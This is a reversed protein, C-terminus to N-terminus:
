PFRIQGGGYRCVLPALGDAHVIGVVFNCM